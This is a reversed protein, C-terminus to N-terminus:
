GGFGLDHILVEEAQSTGGGGDGTLGVEDGLLMVLDEDGVGFGGAGARRVLGLDADVLVGNGLSELM